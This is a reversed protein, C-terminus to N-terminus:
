RRTYKTLIADVEADTAFKGDAADRLGREIGELEAPTADYTRGGLEAEIEEALRVLEDQAQPPWSEFREILKTLKHAM